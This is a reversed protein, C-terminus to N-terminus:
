YRYVLAGRVEHQTTTQGFAGSYNLQVQLGDVNFFMLGADVKALASDFREVISIPPLGSPAAVFQTEAKWSNEPALMVGARLFSRVAAGAGLPTTVGLELGPTFTVGAETVSPYTLNALGVGTETRTSTRFVYGDIDVFPMIQVGGFAGLYSFRLRPNFSDLEGNSKAFGSIGKFETKKESFVPQEGVGGPVNTQIGDFSTYTQSYGNINVHRTTNWDGNSAAAVLGIGFRGSRYNASLNFQYIEAGMSSLYTGDRTQTSSARGAEFGFGLQWNADIVAQGGISAV